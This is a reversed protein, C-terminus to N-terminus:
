VRSNVISERYVAETVAVHATVRAAGDSLLLILIGTESKKRWCRKLRYGRYADLPVESGSQDFGISGAPPEFTKQM